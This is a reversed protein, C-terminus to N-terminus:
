FPYSFAVRFRLKLEFRTVKPKKPNWSNAAMDLLEFLVSKQVGFTCHRIIDKCKSSGQEECKTEQHDCFEGAYGATCVCTYDYLDPWVAVGICVGNGCDVDLCAEYAESTYNANVQTVLFLLFSFVTKQTDMKVLYM